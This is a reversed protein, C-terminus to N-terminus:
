KELRYFKVGDVTETASNGIVNPVLAWSGAGLTKSSKLVWGTVNAPWSVTVKNDPALAISLVPVAVPPGGLGVSSYDGRSVAAIQAQTLVGDYLAVDDLYGDFSTFQDARSGIFLSNENVPFEKVRIIGPLQDVLEGNLYFLVDGSGAADATVAVHTWVDSPVVAAQGQHFATDDARGQQHLFHLFRGGNEIRLEYNGAHNANSDPSPNKAIIGDWQIEGEPKVWATISLAAVMNLAPDHPVQVHSGGVLYIAQGGALPGPTDPSFTPDVM